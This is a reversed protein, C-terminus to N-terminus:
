GLAISGYKITGDPYRAQVKLLDSGPELYFQISSAPLEAEAVPQDLVPLPGTYAALWALLAPQLQKLLDDTEM